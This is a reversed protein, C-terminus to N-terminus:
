LEKTRKVFDRRIKITPIKSMPKPNPHM